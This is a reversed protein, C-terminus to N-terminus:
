ILNQKRTTKNAKFYQAKFSITKVFREFVTVVVPIYDMPMDHCIYSALLEYRFDELLFDDCNFEVPDIDIDLKERKHIKLYNWFNISFQM